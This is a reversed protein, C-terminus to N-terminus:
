INNNNKNSYKFKKELKKVYNNDKFFDYITKTLTKKNNQIKGKIVEEGKNHTTSDFPFNKRIFDITNEKNNSIAKSESLCKFNNFTDNILKVQNDDLNYGVKGNVELDISGNSNRKFLYNDHKDLISIKEYKESDNYIVERNKYKGEYMDDFSLNELIREAQTIKLKNFLKERIINNFGPDSQM